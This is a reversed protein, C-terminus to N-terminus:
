EEWLSPLDEIQRWGDGEGVPTTRIETFYRDLVAKREEALPPSCFDLEEWVATGDPRVRAHRLSYDLSPGFPKMQRIEGAELERLLETHDGQKRAEVLYRAM